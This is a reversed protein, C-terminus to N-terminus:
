LECDKKLELDIELIERNQLDQTRYACPEGVQWLHDLSLDQWIFFRYNGQTLTFTQLFAGSFYSLEQQSGADLVQISVPQTNVRSTAARLTALPNMLGFGTSQDWGLDGIDASSGLILKETQDPTKGLALLLAVLGAVQPAAVSTGTMAVTGDLSGARASLVAEERYLGWHTQTVGGTPALIDLGAGYASYSERQWKDLNVYASGVGIVEPFGAPYAVRKGSNGVAAVVIVGKQRVLAIAQYMPEIYAYGGLSLNIVKAPYPNPLDPLLDAAYLIAQTTDFVSAQNREDLVRLPLIKAKPAIGKIGAHGAILAAVATGHGLPDRMNMTHEIFDYGPLVNQKLSEHNADVGSDIVAVTIGEGQSINWLADANILNLLNQQYLGQASLDEEYLDQKSVEFGELVETESIAAQLIASVPKLVRSEPGILLTSNQIEPTENVQLRVCAHGVDCKAEIEISQCAVLCLLVGLLGLTRFM